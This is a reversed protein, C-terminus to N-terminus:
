LKVEKVSIIDLFIPQMGGLASPFKDVLTLM